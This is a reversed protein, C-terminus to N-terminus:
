FMSWIFHHSFCKFLLLNFFPLYNYDLVTSSFLTSTLQICLLWSYLLFNFFLFSPHIFLVMKIESPTHCQTKYINRVYRYFFYKQFKLSQLLVICCCCLYDTINYFSMINHHTQLHCISTNFWSCTLTQKKLIKLPQISKSMFIQINSSGVRHGDDGKVRKNSWVRPGFRYVLVPFLLTYCLYFTM